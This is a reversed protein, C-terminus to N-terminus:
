SGAPASEQTNWWERFETCRGDPGLRIAFIGEYRTIQSRAARSSSAMWRAIGIEDTVALVEYDFREESEPDFSEAWKRQVEDRGRLLEGFPGWQYTADDAFLAAAADDDQGVFASAYADLWVRLQEETM